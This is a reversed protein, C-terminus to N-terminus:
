IVMEGTNKLDYSNKISTESGLKPTVQYHFM